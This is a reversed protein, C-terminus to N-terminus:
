NAGYKGEIVKAFNGATLLWQFDATWAREGRKSRGTLFDSREVEGFYWRFWDLAEDRSWKEKACVQVWRARCHKQRTPTDIRMKPLSICVEHYIAKIEQFPCDPIRYADARGVLASPVLDKIEELSPPPPPPPSPGLANCNTHVQMANAHEKIRKITQRANWRDHAAGSRKNSISSAREIEMQMRQNYHGDEMRVFYRAIIYRMADIEDASRCNCIGACEQEDLPMPGKSDWCHMLALLYVGHRLPTLHRTDKIYDGTYLALYAFSM